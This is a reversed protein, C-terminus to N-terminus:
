DPYRAKMEEVLEPLIEVGTYKMDPFRAELHPYVELSQCGLDLIRPAKIEPIIAVVDSYSENEKDPANAVQGSEALEKCRRLHDRQVELSEDLTATRIM